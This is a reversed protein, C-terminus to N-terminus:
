PNKEFFVIVRNQRTEMRQIGYPLEYWDNLSTPEVGELRSVVAIVTDILGVPLRQTGLFLNDMAIQIRGQETNVDASFFLTLRSPLSEIKQRGGLDVVIKGEIRNDALLKVAIEKVFEEESVELTYAIFANLDEEPVSINRPPRSPTLTQEAEIKELDAILKEARVRAEPSIQPRSCLFPPLLLFFVLFLYRKMAASADEEM